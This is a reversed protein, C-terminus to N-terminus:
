NSVQCHQVSRNAATNEWNELDVGSNKVSTKLIDKFRKKPGGCARKGSHFLGYFIRNLLCEYTMRVVYSTWRLQSQSTWKHLM